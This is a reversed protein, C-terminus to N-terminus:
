MPTKRTNYILEVKLGLAGNKEKFVRGGQTNFLQEVVISHLHNHGEGRRLELYFSFFSAALVWRMAMTADRPVVRKAVIHKHLM